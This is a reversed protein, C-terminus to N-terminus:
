ASEAADQAGTRAAQQRLHVLHQEQLHAADDHVAAARRHVAAEREHLERGTHTTAEQAAATARLMRQRAREMRNLANRERWETREELTGEFSGPEDSKM